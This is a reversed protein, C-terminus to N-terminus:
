TELRRKRKYLYFPVCMDFLGRFRDTRTMRQVRSMPPHEEVVDGVLKSGGGPVYREIKLIKVPGPPAAPMLTVGFAIGSPVNVASM